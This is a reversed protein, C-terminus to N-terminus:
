VLYCIFSYTFNCHYYGCNNNFLVTYLKHDYFVFTITTLIVNGNHMIFHITLLIINFYQTLNHSTLFTISRTYTLLKITSLM